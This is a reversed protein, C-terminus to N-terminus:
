MVSTVFVSYFLIFCFLIFYFLQNLDTFKFNSLIMSSIVFRDLYSHSFPTASSSIFTSSSISATDKWTLSVRRETEGAAGVSAAAEITARGIDRNYMSSGSGSSNNSSGERMKGTWTGTGERRGTHGRGGSRALASSNSTAHAHTVVMMETWTVMVAYLVDDVDARGTM